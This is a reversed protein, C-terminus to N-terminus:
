GRRGVGSEPWDATFSKHDFLTTHGSAPLYSKHNVPPFNLLRSLVAWSWVQIYEMYEPFLMEEGLSVSTADM